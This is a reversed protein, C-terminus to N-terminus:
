QEARAPMSRALGDFADLIRDRWQAIPDGSELLDKSSAVRAWQFGGFVAYDAYSPQEGGFYPQSELTVRLPDMTAQLAPLAAEAGESFAEISMGFRKERTERFYTQDGEDLFSFLEGVIQRLIAPHLVRSVWIELFRAHARAQPGEFLPRDPYTQDLYDAIKGSDAVWTDGDVLAPVLGQGSPAIREKEVFRWPLTEVDLGKHALALRARWCHPSFRIAPNAAALDYLKLSM